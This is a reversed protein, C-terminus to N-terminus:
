ERTKLVEVLDFDSIRRAVILATVISSLLVVVIATGISSMHLVAPLRYLDTSFQEAIYFAIGYGILTGVPLSLFILVGLEGLLIYAVESKHFGLVRLSALERAREALSIRASNYVVGVAIVTSFGFYFSVMILFTSDLIDKFNQLAASKLAVSNVLPMQKLRIYLAQAYQPDIKLYAASAVPAEMMLAHVASRNMYAMTGIYEQVVMTVLVMRVPRKGELVEIEVVDGVVLNLLEALKDSLVLGSPPLKVPRGDADNLGSLMAGEDIGFIASREALHGHRLRVAISRRLETRLVGPLHEIEHRATANRAEAFQITMDQRQSQFFFSDLMFNISDLFFNSMILLAVAFSIGLVTFGARVPWRSIHRIIVKSPVSINRVFGIHELLGQRYITPPQPQMAVAPSIRTAKIVAQFAGLSAAMISILVTGFLIGFGIRYHLLPFRYYETYLITIGRGMWMGTLTGLATGLLAIILVFKMYHWGVELDSYGFAKLLGIQERETEVLRKIVVHLLFAAVMLFIPPIITTMNKLQDIDARLFADSIHDERDYSGTGGFPELVQDLEDIIADADASRIMTLTVDNFAGKLDFAAELARHGMWIIGFRKNDPFLDGPGIVYVFEPSLAIGVIKLIRQKGNVNGILNDGPRFNNATAFADSIVVEDPDDPRIWRGEALVLDNLIPEGTEPISIIRGRAPERLDPLELILDQVIRTQVLAVGPILAIRDALTEPARKAYGFIHSFRYREYYADRTEQLSQYTGLSMVVSAVGAAIVFAIAVAQGWM